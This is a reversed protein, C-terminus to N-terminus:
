RHSREPASLCPGLSRRGVCHPHESTGLRCSLNGSDCLGGTCIGGPIPYRYHGPHCCFIVNRANTRGTAAGLALEMDRLPHAEGMHVREVASDKAASSSLCTKPVSQATVIANSVLRNPGTYGLVKRRLCTSISPM